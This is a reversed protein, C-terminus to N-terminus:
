KIIEVHKGYVLIIENEGNPRVYEGVDLIFLFENKGKKLNLYRISAKGTQDFFITDTIRGKYKNDFDGFFVRFQYEPWLDTPFYINLIHSNEKEKIVESEYMLCKKLSGVLGESTFTVYTNVLEGKKYIKKYNYLSSIAKNSDILICQSALNKNGIFTVYKLNKYDNLNIIIEKSNLNRLSKDDQNTDKNSKCALLFCCILSYIINNKLNNM